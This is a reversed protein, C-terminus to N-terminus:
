KNCSKNNCFSYSFRDVYGSGHKSIMYSIFSIPGYDLGDADGRGFNYGDTPNLYTRPCITCNDQLGIADGPWYFNISSGFSHQALSGKTVPNTTYNGLYLAVHGENNYYIFFIVDGVYDQGNHESLFTRIESEWNLNGSVDISTLREARNNSNLYDSITWINSVGNYTKVNPCRQTESLSLGGTNLACSVFHACDTDVCGDAMYVKDPCTTNAYTRAFTEADHRNYTVAAKVSETKGDKGFFVNSFIAFCLVLILLIAFFKKGWKM